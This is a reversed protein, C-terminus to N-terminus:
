FKSTLLLNCPRERMSLVAPSARILSCLILEWSMMTTPGETGGKKQSSLCLHSPANTRCSGAVWWRAFEAIVIIFSSSWLCKRESSSDRGGGLKQCIWSDQIASCSSDMKRRWARRNKQTQCREHQQLLLCHLASTKSLGIFGVGGGGGGVGREWWFLFCSPVWNHCLM